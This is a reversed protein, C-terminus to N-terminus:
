CLQWKPKHQALVTERQNNRRRARTCKNYLLLIPFLEIGLAWLNNVNLSLNLFARDRYEDHLLVFSNTSINNALITERLRKLCGELQPWEIGTGNEGFM